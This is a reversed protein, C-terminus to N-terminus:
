GYNSATIIANIAKTRDFRATMATWTKDSVFSDRYLQGGSEHAHSRLPGMGPVDPRPRHTRDAPRNRTRTRRQRRTTGVRIRVPLELRHAPDCSVIGRELNSRSLVYNGGTARPTALKPYRAFTRQIAIGTGEGPAVRAATLAPERAPVTVKYQVDRPIRDPRGEDPQVGLSSYLLGVSTIDAVTMVTDMLHYMDYSAALLNWTANTVSPKQVASRGTAPAHRRVDGARRTPAKRSERIEASTLGAKRAIPVHQSWVYDNNLLWGTRLILLECHRPSLSSERSIYNLFPMTSDVLPPHAAADQRRERSLGSSRIERRATEARRDM